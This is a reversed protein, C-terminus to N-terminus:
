SERGDVCYSTGKQRSEPDVRSLMFFKAEPDRKSTHMTFLRFNTREQLTTCQWKLGCLKMWTVTSTGLCRRFGATMWDLDNVSHVDVRDVLLQQSDIPMPLAYRSTPQHCTASKKLCSGVQRRRGRGRFFTTILFGVAGGTDAAVRSIIDLHPTTTTNGMPTANLSHNLVTSTNYKTLAFRFM